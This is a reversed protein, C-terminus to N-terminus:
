FPGTMEVIEAICEQMMMNSAAGSLVTMDGIRAIYDNVMRHIQEMTDLHCLGPILLRGGGSFGSMAHPM